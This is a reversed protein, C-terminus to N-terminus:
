CWGTPSPEDAHKRRWEAVVYPVDPIRAGLIFRLGAAEIAALNAESDDRRRRGRHRRPAPPRGHVGAIVPLM